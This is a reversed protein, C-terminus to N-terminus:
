ISFQSCCPLFIHIMCCLSQFSVGSLPSLFCTLRGSLHSTDSILCSGQESVMLHKLHAWEFLNNCTVFPIFFGRSIWSMIKRTCISHVVTTGVTYDANNSVCPCWLIYKEESCHMSNPHHIHRYHILDLQQRISLSVAFYGKKNPSRHLFHPFAVHLSSHFFLQCLSQWSPVSGETLM